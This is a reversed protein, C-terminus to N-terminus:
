IIHNLSTQEWWLGVLIVKYNWKALHDVCFKETNSTVMSALLIGHIPLPISAFLPMNIFSFYRGESIVWFCVISCLSSLIQHCFESLKQVRKIKKGNKYLSYDGDNTIFIPLLRWARNVHEMKTNINFDSDGNTLLFIPNLYFSPSPPMRSYTRNDCSFLPQILVRFSKFLLLVIFACNTTRKWTVTWALEM